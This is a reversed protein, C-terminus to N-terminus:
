ANEESLVGSACVGVAIAKQDPYPHLDHRILRQRCRRVRRTEFVHVLGVAQAVAFSARPCASLGNKDEHWCGRLQLRQVNLKVSTGRM